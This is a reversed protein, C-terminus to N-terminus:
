WRGVGIKQFLDTLNDIEGVFNYTNEIGNNFRLEDLTWAYDGVLDGAKPGTLQLM